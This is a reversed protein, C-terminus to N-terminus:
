KKECQKREEIYKKIEDSYNFWEGNERIRDKSFIKHLNRELYEGGEEFFLLEILNESHPMGTKLTKFRSHVSEIFKGKTCGIKVFEGSKIFYTWGTDSTRIQQNDDDHFCKDDCILGCGKQNCFIFAEDSVVTERKAIFLKIYRKISEIEIILKERDGECSLDRIDYRINANYQITKNFYICINFSRIDGRAYGYFRIGKVCDNHIFYRESIASHMWTIFDDKQNIRGSHSSFWVENTDWAM